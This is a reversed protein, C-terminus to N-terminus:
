ASFSITLPAAFGSSDCFAGGTDYAVSISLGAAKAALLIALLDRRTNADPVSSSSFAFGAVTSPCGTTAASPVNNMSFIVSETSGTTTSSNVNVGTVTGTAVQTAAKAPSQLAFAALVMLTPFIIAKQM